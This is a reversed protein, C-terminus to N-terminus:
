TSRRAVTVHELRELFSPWGNEHADRESSDPYGTEHLSLLTKGDQDTLTVTVTTEYAQSEDDKTGTFVQHYVIRTPRDLERYTMDERCSWGVQPDGFEVSTTGGIRADHAVVESRWHPELRYWDEIAAREIFADFAEERTTDMLREVDLEYTM